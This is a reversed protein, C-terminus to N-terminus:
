LIGAPKDRAPTPPPQDEAIYLDSLFLRRSDFYLRGEVTLPKGITSDQQLKQLLAPDGVISVQKPFLRSLIPGGRYSGSLTEARTTLLVRETNNITIFLGNMDRKAEDSVVVLVGTFRVLPPPELFQADSTDRFIGWAIIGLAAVWLLCLSNVRESKETSTSIAAPSRM